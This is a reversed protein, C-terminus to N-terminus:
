KVTAESPETPDFDEALMNRVGRAVERNRKDLRRPPAKAFGDIVGYAFMQTAEDDNENVNEMAWQMFERFDNNVAERSRTANTWALVLASLAAVLAAAWGGLGVINESVVQWVAASAADWELLVHLATRVMAYVVALLVCIVVLLGASIVITGLVFGIKEACNNGSDDRAPPSSTTM